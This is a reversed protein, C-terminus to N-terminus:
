FRDIDYINFHLKTTFDKGLCTFETLTAKDIEIIKENNKEEIDDIEGNDIKIIFKRADILEIFGTIKSLTGFIFLGSNNYKAEVNFYYKIGYEINSLS